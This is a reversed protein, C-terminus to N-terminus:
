GSEPIPRDPFDLMSGKQSLLLSLYRLAGSSLAARPGACLTLCVAEEQEPSPKQQATPHRHCSAAVSSLSSGPFSLCHPQAQLLFLLWHESTNREEERTDDTPHDRVTVRPRGQRQWRRLADMRSIRLSWSCWSWRSFISFSWSISATVLAVEWVRYTHQRISSGM